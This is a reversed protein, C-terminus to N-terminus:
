TKTTTCLSLQETAHPIKTGQGPSSGVERCQFTSEITCPSIEPNETRIWQDINKNKHWYWITKIVRAKCYLRFDPLRIGGARNKKKLITKAIQLRKHRYLNQSKKTRNRHFIGSSIQYPNRQIQLNGQTTCNNQNLFLKIILILFLVSEEM